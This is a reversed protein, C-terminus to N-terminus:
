VTDPVSGMVAPNLKEPLMRWFENCRATVPIKLSTATRPSTEASLSGIPNEIAELTIPCSSVAGVSGVPIVVACPEATPVNVSVKSGGESQAGAFAGALPTM